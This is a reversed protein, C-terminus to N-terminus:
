RGALERFRDGREGFNNFMDYSSCAPSLLVAGGEPALETARAVAGEFSEAREVRIAAGLDAEILDVAEGYAVVAVANGLEAILSDYPEGKHRGGMLVVYPRDMAALAVRTSGVNTAKSDNIFTIGGVEGVSEMRHPLAKLGVLGAAIDDIEIGAQWAALSAALANAVNHDGLLPLERRAILRRDGLMLAGSERDYWGDAKQEISFHFRHGPVDKLLEVSDPDDGNSVWCADDEAAAFLRAKDAYYSALDPYRDLHDASLNTLVGVDPLFPVMDHLQFSSLEVALWDPREALLAIETVPTGINGVAVCGQGASSLLQAIMSTVTSKGNTGTVAVIGVGGLADLGLEAEAVVPIGADVAAKVVPADGPIGPSLVLAVARGIRELDHGKGELTVRESGLAALEAPVEAKSDSGYVPMGASALLKVAAIGSSGLGAVAVEGGKARWQELLSM